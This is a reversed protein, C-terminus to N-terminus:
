PWDPREKRPPPSPSRASSRSSRGSSPPRFATLEAATVGTAATRVEMAWGPLGAREARRAARDLLRAARRGLAREAEGVDASGPEPGPGPRRRPRLEWWLAGRVGAAADEDIDALDDVIRWALAFDTVVPGLRSATRGGEALMAPVLTWLAAQRAATRYYGDRSRESRRAASRRYVAAHVAAPRAPTGWQAALGHVARAWEQWALARMGLNGPSAPLQGDALHDEWLHLFLALAQAREADAAGRAAPVWHLFSWVPPPFRAFFDGDPARASRGHATVERLVAARWAAPLGQAAGLLHRHLRGRLASVESTEAIAGFRARNM